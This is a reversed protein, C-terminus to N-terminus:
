NEQISVILYAQSIKLDFNHNNPLHLTGPFGYYTFIALFAEMCKTTGQFCLVQILKIQFDPMFNNLMCLLSQGKINQNSLPWVNDPTVLTLHLHIVFTYLGSLSVMFNECVLQVPFQGFHLKKLKESEKKSSIILNASWFLNSDRTVSFLYTISVQSEVFPKYSTLLLMFLM